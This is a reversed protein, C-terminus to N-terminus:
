RQVYYKLLVTVILNWVAIIPSKMCFEFRITVTQWVDVVQCGGQFTCSNEPYGIQNFCIVLNKYSCVVHRLSSNDCGKFEVFKARAKLNLPHQVFKDSM